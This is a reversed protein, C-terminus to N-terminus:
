KSNELDDLYAYLVFPWIIALLFLIMWDKKPLKKDEQFISGVFIGLAFCSIMFYAIIM